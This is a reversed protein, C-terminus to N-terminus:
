RARRVPMRTKRLRHLGSRAAAGNPVPELRGRLDLLYAAIAPQRELEPVLGLREVGCAPLAGGPEWFACEEALCTSVRGAAVQLHCQM